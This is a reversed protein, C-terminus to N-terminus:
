RRTDSKSAKGLAPVANEMLWLESRSKVTVFALQQGDPNISLGYADLTAKLKRPAQGDISLLWFESGICCLIQRNDSLWGWGTFLMNTTHM